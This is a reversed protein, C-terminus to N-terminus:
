VFNYGSSNENYISELEKHLLRKICDQEMINM